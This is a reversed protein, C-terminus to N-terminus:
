RSCDFSVAPAGVITSNGRAILLRTRV